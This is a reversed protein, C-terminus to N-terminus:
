DDVHKMKDKEALLAKDPRLSITRHCYPCKIEYFDAVPYHGGHDDWATRMTVDEAEYTFECGCLNCVASHKIRGKKVIEVM